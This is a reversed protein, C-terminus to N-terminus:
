FILDNEQSFFDEFGHQCHSFVHIETNQHLLNWVKLISGLLGAQKKSLNFDRVLDNSDEQTLLHPESSSFSAESTPDCDFNKSNMIKVLILTTM